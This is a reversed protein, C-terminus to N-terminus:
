GCLYAAWNEIIEKTQALFDTREYSNVVKSVPRHMLVMKGMVDYAVDSTALNKSQHM